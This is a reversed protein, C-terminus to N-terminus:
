FQTSQVEPASIRDLTRQIRRVDIHLCTPLAAPLLLSVACAYYVADEVAMCRVKSESPYLLNWQGMRAAYVVVDRWTAVGTQTAQLRMAPVPGQRGKELYAELEPVFVLHM